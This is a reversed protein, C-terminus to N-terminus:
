REDFKPILRHERGPVINERRTRWLSGIRQQVPDRFGVFDHIYGGAVSDLRPAADMGRSEGELYGRAQKRAVSIQSKVNQYNSLNLRLDDANSLSLHNLQREQELLHQAFLRQKDKSLGSAPFDIEIPRLIIRNGEPISDFRAGAMTEKNSVNSKAPSM